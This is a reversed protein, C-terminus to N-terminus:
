IDEDSAIIEEEEEEKAKPMTWSAFDCDPYKNCGYFIKGRKTRRTIVEGE